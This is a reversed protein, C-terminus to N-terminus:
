RKVGRTRPELQKARLEAVMDFFGTKVVGASIEAQRNKVRTYLMAWQQKAHDLNRDNEFAQLAEIRGLWYSTEGIDASTDRLWGMAQLVAYNKGSASVYPTFDFDVRMRNVDQEDETVFKSM